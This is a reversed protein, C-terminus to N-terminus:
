KPPGQLTELAWELSGVAQTVATQRDLGIGICLGDHDSVGTNLWVHYEGDEEYVHLAHPVHVDAEYHEQKRRKPREIAPKPYDTNM